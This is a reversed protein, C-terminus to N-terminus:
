YISNLWGIKCTITAQDNNKIKTKKSQKEESVIPKLQFNVTNRRSFDLSDYLAESIEVDYNINTNDEKLHIFYSPKKYTNKLGITSPDKKYLSIIEGRLAYAKSLSPIKNLYNLSGFIGWAILVVSFVHLLTKIVSHQKVFEPTRFIVHLFLFSLGISCLIVFPYFNYIILNISDIIVNTSALVVGLIGSIVFVFYLLVLYWLKKKIQFKSTSM